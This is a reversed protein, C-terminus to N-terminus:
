NSGQKHRQRRRGGIQGRRLVGFRSGKDDKTEAKKRNRCENPPRGAAAGLWARLERRETVGNTLV